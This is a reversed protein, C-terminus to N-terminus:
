RPSQSLVVHGFSFHRFETRGSVILATGTRCGPLHTLPAITSTRAAISTWMSNVLGFRSQLVNPFYKKSPPM